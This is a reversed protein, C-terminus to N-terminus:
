SDPTTAPSERLHALLCLFMIVGVISIGLQWFLDSEVWVYNWWFFIRPYQPLYGSSNWYYIDNPWFSIAKPWLYTNPIIYIIKAIVWFVVWNIALYWKLRSEVITDWVKAWQIAHSQVEHTRAAIRQALSNTAM